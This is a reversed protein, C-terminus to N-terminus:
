GMFIVNPHYVDANLRDPMQVPPKQIQGTQDDASGVCEMPGALRQGSGNGLRAQLWQETRQGSTSESRGLRRGCLGSKGSIETYHSM